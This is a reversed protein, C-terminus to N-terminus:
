ELCVDCGKGSHAFNPKYTKKKPPPALGRRAKGGEGRGRTLLLNGGTWKGGGM